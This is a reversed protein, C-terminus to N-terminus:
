CLVQFKTFSQFSFFFSMGWGREVVREAQCLQKVPNEQELICSSIAAAKFLALAESALHSIPPCKSFYDEKLSPFAM